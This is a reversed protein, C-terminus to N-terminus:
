KWAFLLRGEGLHGLVENIDHVPVSFCGLSRGIRGSLRAMHPNVYDAGHMVIARSAANSNDPDLGVLRGSRGHKGYYTSATLFSGRSSANSGPRNSFRELFGSNGPDSGRGHAVFYTQLIRGSSLDVIQFRPNRSPQSFDVLGVVDRHRIRSAHADLAAKAQPLLDPEETSRVAAFARPAVLGATGVLAGGIIHRRSLTM